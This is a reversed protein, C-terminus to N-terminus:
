YGWGKDTYIRRQRTMPPTPNAAAVESAAISRAQLLETLSAYEVERDSFRVRRTGSKIATDLADIDAQTWAV